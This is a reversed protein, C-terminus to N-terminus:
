FNKSKLVVFRIFSSFIKKFILRPSVHIHVISMSLVDYAPSTLSFNILHKQDKTYHNCSASLVAARITAFLMQAWGIQYMCTVVSYPKNWHYSIPGLLVKSRLGALVTWWFIVSPIISAYAHDSTLLSNVM